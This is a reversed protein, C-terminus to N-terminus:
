MSFSSMVPEPLPPTSSEFGNQCNSGGPSDRISSIGRPGANVVCGSPPHTIASLQRSPTTSSCPCTKSVFVACLMWRPSTTNSPEMMGRENPVLGANVMEATTSRANPFSFASQCAPGEPSDCFSTPGIGLYLVGSTARSMGVLTAIQSRKSPGRCRAVSEGFCPLNISSIVRRNQGVDTLSSAMDIARVSLMSEVVSLLKM